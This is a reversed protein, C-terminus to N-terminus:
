WAASPPMSCLIADPNGGSSFGFKTGRDYVLNFEAYHARKQLQVIKDSENFPTNIRNRYIPIIAELFANGVGM